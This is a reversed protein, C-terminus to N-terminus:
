VCSVQFNVPPMFSPRTGCRRIVCVAVGGRSEYWSVAFYYSGDWLLCVIVSVLSICATLCRCGLWAHVCFWTVLFVGGCIEWIGVILWLIVCSGCGLLPDVYVDDSSDLTVWVIVFCLLLVRVTCVPAHLYPHALSTTTCGVCVSFILFILDISLTAPFMHSASLLTSCACVVRRWVGAGCISM